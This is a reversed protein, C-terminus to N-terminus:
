HRANVEPPNKYKAIFPKIPSSLSTLDKMENIMQKIEIANPNNKMYTKASKSHIKSYEHIFLERESTKM